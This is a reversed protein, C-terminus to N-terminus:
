NGKHRSFNCGLSNHLSFLCDAACRNTVFKELFTKFPEVVDLPAFKCLHLELFEFVLM